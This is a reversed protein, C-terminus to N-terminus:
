RLGTPTAHTPLTGPCMPQRPMNPFPLTASFPPKHYRQFLGPPQLDGHKLISIFKQFMYSDSLASKLLSLSLSKGPSGTTFFRGELAPSTPEIGPQPVLIGCATPCSLGRAVVVSSTHRLLLGRMGCVVSGVRGPARAGCSSLFRLLSRVRVFLDQTSCSLGSVALFFLSFLYINFFPSIILRPFAM